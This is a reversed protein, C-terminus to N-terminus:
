CCQEETPYCCSGSCCVGTGECNVTCNGCHNPDDAEVNTCVGDCCWQPGSSPCANGCSGCNLPDGSTDTCTGNCCITGAACTVGGCGGCAGGVCLEGTPCANGCSGCNASDTQLDTCASVGNATCCTDAAACVVVAGCTCKGTVCTEGPPCVIGCDGCNKPDTQIDTCTDNCKKQCQPCDCCYCVEKQAAEYAYDGVPGSVLEYFIQAEVMCQRHRLFNDPYGQDCFNQMCTLFTDDCVSKDIGCTGYCCDHNNCCPTVNVKPGFKGNDHFFAPSEPGCGNFTSLAGQVTIDCTLLDVYGTVPSCLDSCEAVEGGCDGIIMQAAARPADGLIALVPQAAVAAAVSGTLVSLVQRRSMKRAIARSLQDFDEGSM